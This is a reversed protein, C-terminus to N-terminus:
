PFEHKKGEMSKRIKKIARYYVTALGKYSLGLERALAVFNKSELAYSLLVYQEREEMSLLAELLAENQIRMLLPLGAEDEQGDQDAIEDDMDGVALMMEQYKQLQILYDKMKRQAATTLYHTFQNQLVSDQKEGNDKNRM